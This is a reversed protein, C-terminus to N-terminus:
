QSAEWIAKVEDIDKKRQNNRLISVLNQVIESFEPDAMLQSIGDRVLDEVLQHPRRKLLFCIARFQEVEAAGNTTFTTRLQGSPKKRPTNPM